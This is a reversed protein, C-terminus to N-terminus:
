KKWRLLNIIRILQNERALDFPTKGDANQINSDVGETQILETAFDVNKRIIAWHLATNGDKQTCYNLNVGLSIAKALAEKFQDLDKADASKALRFFEPEEFIINSTQIMNPNFESSAAGSSSAGAPTPNAEKPKLIFIAPDQKNAIIKKYLNSPCKKKCLPCEDHYKRWEHSRPDDRLHLVLDTEPDRWEHVPKYETSKTKFWTAICDFHFTHSCPLTCVKEGVNMSMSCILCEEGEQAFVYNKSSISLLCTLFFLFNFLKKAVKM